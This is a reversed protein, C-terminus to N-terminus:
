TRINFPVIFHKLIVFIVRLQIKFVQILKLLQYTNLPTTNKM